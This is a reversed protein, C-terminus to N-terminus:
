EEAPVHQATMPFSEKPNAHHDLKKPGLARGSLAARQSTAIKSRRRCDFTRSASIHVMIRTRRVVLHIQPYEPEQLCDWHVITDWRVTLSGGTSLTQIQLNRQRKSNM